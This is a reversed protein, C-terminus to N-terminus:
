KIGLLSNIRKKDFGVIIEGAIDTQPVGQQGSKKVMAEAATKDKSIDINTYKIGHQDFHRKITTCWSCTPTTYLTIRKQSKGETEQKASFLSSEFLSKYFSDDSCGKITKVYKNGEFIMLSPVSTINYIGHIDRVMTVDASMINIKEIEQLSNAISNYSCDSAESGKKFLLVYNKGDENLLNQM